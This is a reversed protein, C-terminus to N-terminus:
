LDTKKKILQVQEKSQEELYNKFQYHKALNMNITQYNLEIQDQRYIHDKYIDDEDKREKKKIVYQQQHQNM